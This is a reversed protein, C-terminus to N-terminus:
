KQIITKVAELFTCNNTKMVFDVVTGGGCGGFCYWRNQQTYIVFSGNKEIHFQCKGVLTQGQLRLKGVYLNELPFEKAKVIDLGTIKGDKSDSPMKEQLSSLLFYNKKIKAERGKILSEIFFTDRLLMYMPKDELSAKSLFKNNYEIKLEGAKVLDQEAQNIESKLKKIVYPKATPFIELLQYFTYHTQSEQWQKELSDCMSLQEPTFVSLKGLYKDITSLYKIMLLHHM